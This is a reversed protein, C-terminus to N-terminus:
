EYNNDRKKLKKYEKKYKITKKIEKFLIKINLYRKLSKFFQKLNSKFLVFQTKYFKKNIFNKYIQKFEFRVKKNSRILLLSLKSSSLNLTLVFIITILSMLWAIDNGQGPASESAIKYIGTTLTSGSSLFGKDPYKIATGLTLYIPASEGIIRAMALITGTIIAQLANPLVIKFLTKTKSLGLAIAAERYSLPVSTLADEFNKILMPLVVITMTFSASFISFPLKLYIIFVSLGFIGFIISPTSAALNLLFRFFKALWSNKNAFESLYIACALALPIAFLLTCLILLLTTLIAAFIGDEGEITLFAESYKLGSLGNFTTTCVIWFTFMIVFSISLWMLVLMITSYIKRFLKNEARNTIIQDLTQRQYLKIHKIKHTKKNKFLVIHIKQSISNKNSVFLILLNIIFVLIFLFMGIAYLASEHLSSSNELMELGITSSLTRISSFLFGSVGNNTDFWATSNGAIMMIAMTEGIVRAMGLIVASIIKPTASKRIINFTTKEKSIGLALSADRYIFPVSKIADYSLSIMIPIAMFAMTLSAVMLNDNSSAGILKFLAGIQERAFLGFVVSPIGALLKIITITIKQSKLTLYESIFFSTFITLPVAILMSIFILILTMLTITLIGFQKSDPSWNKGFVFDFFSQKNFLVNTKIMVFGLLIVLALVVFITLAIIISKLCVFSTEKKQRVVKFEINNTIKKFLM